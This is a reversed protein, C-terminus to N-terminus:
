RDRDTIFRFGGIENDLVADRVFYSSRNRGDIVFLDVVLNDDKNRKGEEVHSIFAVNKVLGDTSGTFYFVRKGVRFSQVEDFEVIKSAPIQAEGQNAM